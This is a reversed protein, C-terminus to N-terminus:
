EAVRPKSGQNVISLIRSAIFVKNRKRGTGEVLIRAKVLESVYAKATPYTVRLKKAVSPIDIGPTMFLADVLKLILASSSIAQVKERYEERLDILQKTQRAAEGSQETVARLFFQIWEQWSGKQSVYLLGGYYEDRNKEFFESLHLLPQSLINKEALLIPLLLRGVRGNGDLFPHMAEFQYHILALRVLFLHDGQVHLSSEFDNLCDQLEKAPPPVYRANTILQGHHGIWNQRTRFEGPHKEFGRVGNMLTAHLTRIMRLCVPLENLLKLGQELAAMYNWVERVDPTAPASNRDIEFLLLEEQTAYTGEIRSSLEAEHRLFPRVLLQPNPLSQSAGQLLGVARSADTLRAVTAPTLALKEPLPNPVFAYGGEPIPILRGPSDVTFDIPNM